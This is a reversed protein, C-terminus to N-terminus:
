LNADFRTHWLIQDYTQSGYRLIILLFENRIIYAFVVQIPIDVIVLM